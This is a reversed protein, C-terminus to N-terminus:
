EDLCCFVDALVPFYVLIVLSYIVQVTKVLYCTEIGVTKCKYTHVHM